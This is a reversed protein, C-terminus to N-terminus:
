GLHAPHQYAAGPWGNNDFRHYSGAINMGYWLPMKQEVGGGQQLGVMGSACAALCDDPKVMAMRVAQRQRGGFVAAQGPGLQQRHNDRNLLARRTVQASPAANICRQLRFGNLKMGLTLRAKLRGHMGTKDAVLRDTLSLLPWAM